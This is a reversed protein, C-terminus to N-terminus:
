FEPLIIDEARGAKESGLGFMITYVMGAVLLVFIILAIVANRKAKKM